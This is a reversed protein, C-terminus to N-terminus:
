GVLPDGRSSGGRSRRRMGGVYAFGSANSLAQGRDTRRTRTSVMANRLSAREERIARAAARAEEIRKLQAAVEDMRQNFRERKDRRIEAERQGAEDVRQQQVRTAMGLALAECDAKYLQVRFGPDVAHRRLETYRRVSDEDALVQQRLIAKKLERIKNAAYKADMGPLAKLAKGLEGIGESDLITKLDLMPDLRIGKKGCGREITRLQAEICTLGPTPRVAQLQKIDWRLIEAFQRAFLGPLRDFMKVVDSITEVHLKARVKKCSRLQFESRYLTPPLDATLAGRSKREAKKDYLVVAHRKTTHVGGTPFRQQKKYPLYLRDIIPQYASCPEDLILNKFLDIRCIKATDLDAGACISKLVRQVRDFVAEMGQQDAPWTNDGNGHLGAVSFTVLFGIGLRPYSKNIPGISVCIGEERYVAKIGEVPEYNFDRFLVQNQAPNKARIVKLNPNRKLIWEDAVEPMKLSLHITDVGVTLLTPSLHDADTDGFPLRLAHDDSGIFPVRVSNGKPNIVPQFRTKFAKNYSIRRAHQRPSERLSISKNTFDELLTGM